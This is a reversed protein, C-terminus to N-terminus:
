KKREIELAKSLATLPNEYTSMTSIIYDEKTKRDYLILKPGIGYAPRIFVIFFRYEEKDYNQNVEKVLMFKGKYNETFIEKAFQNFSKSGEEILLTGTYRRYAPPINGKEVTLRNVSPGCGIVFITALLVIMAPLYKFKTKM